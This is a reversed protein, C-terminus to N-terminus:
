EARLLVTTRVRAALRGPVVAVANALVLTGLVALVVPVVPVAPQPVASIAHAFVDWLSRGAVIGAPVGIAVGVLAVISAQWSVVAALQRPVFGLMKLLALERRHRRVSAVLTLSLALVAGLALGAAMIAPTSGMTRYNVIQAPQQVSLVILSGGGDPDRAMVRNAAQVVRHLSALGAAASDRGRLAVVVASPGNQNPDPSVLARRMAAPEIGMPVLAGTGMSTHLYGTTGIAPLTTTGVVRLRTPPVYIPADEPSGYSITVTDGLRTHLQALTSGGLVIQATSRLGHGSLIPPSLAANADALLIPVTQGDISANGFNFGTWSAIDPDRDLLRTAAQPVSGGGEQEIAYSWNWGYLDPHSVLTHLSNGFTLTTVVVAVALIAGLLAPGVPADDSGQGRQLAFRIGPAAAPPLGARGVTGALTPSGRAARAGSGTAGVVGIAQRVAVLGTYAALVVLLVAFGGGLVTWDVAFGPSPDVARVAGVPAIPSLLVAIVVALISGLLLAGIAGSVSDAVMMTPSAGLARLVGVDHRNARINRGIAQAGIILAALATIAGFVGFAISLPKLSQQVEDAGVSTVHFNYTEGPPLHAVIEREVAAVGSAGHDLLFSYTAFGAAGGRVLATTLAPTFVFPTPYRDVEDQVVTSSSAVIGVVKARLRLFPPQHRPDAGDLQAFTFAAMPVVQGVHWHLTRATQATLMVENRRRPDALRGVDAVMRDQAVYEGNVGGTELVDSSNNLPSNLVPVGRADVPVVFMSVSVGLRRVGPLRALERTLAPSYVHSSASNQGNASFPQLGLDSTASTALFTPFASQTRRAATLAGMALGGVLGILVTVTVLGTWRRHFTRGFRYRALRLARPFRM